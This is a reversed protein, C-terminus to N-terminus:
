DQRNRADHKIRVEGAENDAFFEAVAKGVITLTLADLSDKFITNRTDRQIDGCKAYGTNGLNHSVPKGEGGTFGEVFETFL